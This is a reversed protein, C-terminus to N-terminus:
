YLNGKVQTIMISAGENIGTMRSANGMNTAIEVMGHSGILVVPRDKKGEGYAKVYTAQIGNILLPDGYDFARKLYLADINTVINGFNDIYVAKGSIAKGDMFGYGTEINVPDTIEKLCSIDKGAALFAAAPAFVDRGHFVHSVDKFYFSTDTIEYAMYDGQAKAAPILLGNDPGVFTYKEGKIVICRRKGGVGPDVVALHITGEPFFSSAYRLIFAGQLINEQSVNNTIDIINADPAIGMIVGKMIGPYVEGFDTTLTIIGAM